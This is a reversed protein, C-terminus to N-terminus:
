RPRSKVRRAAPSPARRRTRSSFRRSNLNKIIMEFANTTINKFTFVGLSVEAVEDNSCGALAIVAAGLAGCLRLTRSTM